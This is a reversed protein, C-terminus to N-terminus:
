VRKERCFDKNHGMEEGGGGVGVRGDAVACIYGGIIGVVVEGRGGMVFFGLASFLLTRTKPTRELYLAPVLVM